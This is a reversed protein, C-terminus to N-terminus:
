RIPRRRENQIVADWLDKSAKSTPTRRQKRKWEAAARIVEQRELTEYIANFLWYAAYGFLLMYVTWRIAPEAWMESLFTSFNIM